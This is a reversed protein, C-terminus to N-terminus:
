QYGYKNDNIFEGKFEYKETKLKTNLIQGLITIDGKKTIISLIHSNNTTHHFLIKQIIGTISKTNNYDISM